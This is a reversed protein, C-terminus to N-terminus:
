VVQRWWPTETLPIIKINKRYIGWSYLIENDAVIQNITKHKFDICHPRSLLFDFISALWKDFFLVNGLCQCRFCCCCLFCALPKPFIGNVVKPPKASGFIVFNCLFNCFAVWPKKRWFQCKEINSYEISMLIIPVAWFHLLLSPKVPKVKDM